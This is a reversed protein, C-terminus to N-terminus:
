LALLLHGECARSNRPSIRLACLQNLGASLRGWRKLQAVPARANWRGPVPENMGVKPLVKLALLCGKPHNKSTLDDRASGINFIHRPLANVLMHPSNDDNGHQKREHSNSIRETLNVRSDIEGGGYCKNGNRRDTM